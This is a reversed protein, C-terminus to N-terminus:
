GLATRVEDASPNRLVQDGVLVTPTYEDGRNHSRVERNAESDVWVNVWVIRTDDRLARRLATCYRCTPKWFAVARDTALQDRAAAWPTHPERRLTAVIMGGGIVLGAVGALSAAVVSSRWIVVAVVLGLVAVVAGSVLNARM